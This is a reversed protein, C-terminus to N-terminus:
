RPDKEFIEITVGVEGKRGAKEQVYEVTVWELSDDKLWADKPINFKKQARSRYDVLGDLIPKCGAIFNDQDLKRKLFGTIRVFRHVQPNDGAGMFDWVRLKWRNRYRNIVYKNNGLSNPSIVKGPVFASKIM